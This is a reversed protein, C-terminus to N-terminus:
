RTTAISARYEASSAGQEPLYVDLFVYFGRKGRNRAVV